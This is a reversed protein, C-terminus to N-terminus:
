TFAMVLVDVHIENRRLFPIAHPDDYQASMPESAVKYHPHTAIWARLQETKEKTMEADTKGSYRLSVTHREPVTKLLVDPSEPLPVTM